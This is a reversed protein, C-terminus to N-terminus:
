STEGQSLRQELNSGQRVLYVYRDPGAISCRVYRKSVWQNLRQGWDAHTGDPHDLFAHKELMVILDPPKNELDRLIREELQKALPERRLPYDFFVGCPPSKGCYFYVPSTQSPASFVYVSEDSDLLRRIAFGAEMPDYHDWYLESGRAEVAWPAKGEQFDLAFRLGLPAIVLAPLALRWAPAIQLHTSTVAFIIAGAALAYVPMWVEFYYEPHRGTIATALYAGIAWAALMLYGTRQRPDLRSRALYAMSLCPIIVLLLYRKYSPALFANKLNDAMNGAYARNYLFVASYFDTFTGRFWFFALCIIWLGGAISAAVIMQGLALRSRGTERFCEATYAFAMLVVPVVAIHKYLSALGVIAGFACALWWSPATRLRTLVGYGLVLCANVFIETNPQYGEWYPCVAGGAWLLAALVGAKSGGFILGAWYLEILILAQAALNLLYFEHKGYGTILEAAAYTLHIGPPKHDWLDAYLERGGLMEHGILAYVGQDGRVPEHYSILRVVAMFLICLALVAVVTGRGMTPDALVPGRSPSSTAIAM